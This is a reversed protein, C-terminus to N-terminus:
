ARHRRRLKTLHREYLRAAEPLLRRYWHLDGGKRGGVLLVATGDPDVAFLVRWPAGDIQLRLERMGAYGAEDIDDAYPRGLDSGHSALLRAHALIELRVDPEQEDLWVAFSETM